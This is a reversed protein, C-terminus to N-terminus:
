VLIRVFRRLLLSCFTPNLKRNGGTKWCWNEWDKQLERVSRRSKEDPFLPLMPESTIILDHGHLSISILTSAQLLEKKEQKLPITNPRGAHITTDQLMPNSHFEMPM